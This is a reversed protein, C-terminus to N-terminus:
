RMLAPELAVPRGTDASEELAALVRVVRAGAEFDVETRRGTRVCEVFHRIQATLPQEGPHPLKETTGDRNNPADHEARYITLKDEAGDDFVITGRSGVVSVVRERFPYDWSVRLDAVVGGPFRLAAFAVDARGARIYANREAYVREPMAAAFELFMAVDHPALDWLADVDPRIPSFAMRSATMARLEGLAGSRICDRMVRVAANFHYVHGTLVPVGLLAADRALADATDTRDTLPKEVLLPKKVAMVARALESHLSTPAVVIVADCDDAACLERLDTTRKAQPYLERARALAADSVDAIWTLEAGDVAAVSKAYNPGWYGFGVLGLRVNSV